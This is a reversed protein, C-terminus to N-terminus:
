RPEMTIRITDGYAGALVPANDAVNSAGQRLNFHLVLDGEAPNDITVGQSTLARTKANALLTGAADAWTFSAEYPLASAFTTGPTALRGDTPWLGNNQSEVTVKHPFNCVASFAVTASAAKAALTQPDTLQVIRLTDGQTGNVNNLESAQLSAPQMACVQPVSGTVPMTRSATVSQALAPAAIAGCGLALAALLAQARM